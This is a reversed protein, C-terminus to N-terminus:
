HRTEQGRSLANLRPHKMKYNELVFVGDIGQRKPDSLANLCPDENQLKPRGKRCFLAEKSKKDRPTKPLTKMKYNLAAKEGFRLGWSNKDRPM